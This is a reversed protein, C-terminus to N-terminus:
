DTHNLINESQAHQFSLKILMFLIGHGIDNRAIWVLTDPSTTIKKFFVLFCTLKLKDNDDLDCQAQRFIEFVM